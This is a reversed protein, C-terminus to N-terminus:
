PSIFNAVQPTLPPLEAEQFFNADFGWHRTPIAYYPTPYGAIASPAVFFNTAYISPFMAVISGNYTLTNDSWSELLRLFNEVGGSYQKQTTFTSPVIGALIATNITTSAANRSGLPTGSNYTDVWSGSLITVADGMLAAPYTYACNTTGLSSGGGSNTQVNYNGWVYIPMPTAVTLGATSYGGYTTYPLQAGNMVRVAPLQTSTLPVSNYVYISDIGHGIAQFNLNNWILGGGPKANTLWASFAAVNIQVAQVTAVQRYDFFAVNTMFSWGAYLVNTYSDVGASLLPSVYNTYPGSPAAKKLIYFDNTLQTLYGTAPAAFFPDQFYIFLKTGSPAANNTGSISNSIILDAENYLYVQNSPAYAAPNPAALGSPPLNLISEANTLSGGTVPMVLSGVGSVPNGGAYDLNAAIFIQNQQDNPDDSNTVLLTASVSSNFTALAGPCM